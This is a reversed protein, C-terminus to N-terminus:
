RRPLMRSTLVYDVAARVFGLEDLSMGNIMKAIWVRLSVSQTLENESSPAYDQITPLPGSEKWVQIRDLRRGHKALEAVLDPHIDMTPLNDMRDYGCPHAKLVASFHAIEKDTFPM